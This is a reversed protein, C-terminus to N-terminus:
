QERLKGYFEVRKVAFQYADSTKEPLMQSLKIAEWYAQDIDRRHEAMIVKFKQDRLADNFARTAEALRAAAEAYFAPRESLATATTMCNELTRKALYLNEPRIDRKKLLDNGTDLDRRAMASIHERNSLALRRIPESPQPFDIFQQPETLRLTRLIDTFPKAFLDKYATPCSCEAVIRKNGALIFLGKGTRDQSGFAYFVGTVNNVSMTMSGSIKVGPHRAVLTELYNDFGTRLGTFSHGPNHDAYVNVLAFANADPIRTEFGFAADKEGQVLKWGVPASICVAYQEDTHSVGRGGTSTGEVAAFRWAAAAAVLVLVVALAILVRRRSAPVTARPSAAKLGRLEKEDMIRTEGDGIVRTRDPADGAPQKQPPMFRTEGGSPAQPCVTANSPAAVPENGDVFATCTENQPLAIAFKLKADGLQLIDGDNLSVTGRVRKDNLFTGHSSDLDEAIVKDGGVVLRVHKRSVLPDELVLQNSRSRGISSEGSALPLVEGARPTNMFVLTFICDPM